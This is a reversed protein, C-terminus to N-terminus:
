GFNQKALALLVSMTKDEKARYEQQREQREVARARLLEEKRLERDNKKRDLEKKQRKLGELGDDGMLDGEAVEEIAGPSKDRFSRMKENLEKKKELQRERTGAEACPVLEELREKQTIRDLKREHKISSIAELRDEYMIERQLELDQTNPINPGLKRGSHNHRPITPGVEGNDDETSQNEEHDSDAGQVNEYNPSNRRRRLPEAENVAASELAKLRTSPDYWGEALDGRNWRGVFSKWRGRAEDPDLEELTLQKQIDLYLAFMHRYAEFDHKFLPLSNFPLAAPKATPPPKSHKVAPNRRGHAEDRNRNRHHHRHRRGQDPSRSRSSRRRSPSKSYRRSRHHDPM